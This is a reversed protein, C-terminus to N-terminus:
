SQIFDYIIKSGELKKISCVDDNYVIHESFM